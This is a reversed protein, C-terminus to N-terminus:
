GDDRGKLNKMEIRLQYLRETLETVLSNKSHLESIEYEGMVVGPVFAEYGNLEEALSDILPSAEEQIEDKTM